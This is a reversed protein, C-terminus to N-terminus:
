RLCGKLLAAVNAAQLDEVHKLYIFAVLIGLANLLVLALLFPQSKLGSLADSALGWM